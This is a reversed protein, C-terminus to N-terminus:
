YIRCCLQQACIESVYYKAYKNYTVNPYVVSYTVFVLIGFM